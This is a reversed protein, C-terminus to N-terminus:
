GILYVFMCIRCSDSLRDHSGRTTKKATLRKDPMDIVHNHRRPILLHLVCCILFGVSLLFFVGYVNIAHALAHECEENKPTMQRNRNM